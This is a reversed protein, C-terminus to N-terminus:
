EDAPRIGLQAPTIRIAKFNEFLLNRFSLKMEAQLHNFLAHYSKAIATNWSLGLADSIKRIVEVSEGEIEVFNGYPLEDFMIHLSGEAPELVESPNISYTTRYKEYIFISEYGLAELFQKAKEFNDVTFEIETRSLVGQDNNSASKYTLRAESDQRLRLVRGESRLLGNPLDFRINTELVREHILRAELQRLRVKTGDIDQIYFKAETEQGSAPM